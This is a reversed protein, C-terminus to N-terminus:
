ANVGGDWSLGRGEFGLVGVGVSLSGSVEPTKDSILVENM